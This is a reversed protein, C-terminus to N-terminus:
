NETLLELRVPLKSKGTVMLSYTDTKSEYYKQPNIKYKVVIEKNKPEIRVIEFIRNPATSVSILMIVMEKAFDANPFNGPHTRAFLKYGEEDTFVMHSLPFSSFDINGPKLKKGPANGGPKYLSQEMKQLSPTIIKGKLDDESLFVYGSDAEDESEQRIRSLEKDVDSIKPLIRVKGNPNFYDKFSEDLYTKDANPNEPELPKESSVVAQYDDNSDVLSYPNKLESIKRLILVLMVLWLLIFGAFIKLLLKRKKLYDLIIM